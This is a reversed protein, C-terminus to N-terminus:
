KLQGKFALIARDKASLPKTGGMSNTLTKAASPKAESPAPAAPAAPKLKQQIKNVKHLKLVEEMLFEEIEKAAEQTSLLIGDEKFTRTILDVVDEASDTAKITEFEPDSTVLTRVENRIQNVANDYAKTQQEQFGQKTEDQGTRLAKIEAKLADVEAKMRPDLQPVPNLAWQAFQEQTFGNEILFSIPDAMIDEKSVYKAPDVAEPAQHKSVAEERAKLAEERAKFASEQAQAKARLQKEKRALVAYQSSLPEDKPKTDAPSTASDASVPAETTDAQRDEPTSGTRLAGMEEPSIANANQVPHPQEAAKPPPAGASLRAIARERASTMNSTPVPADQSVPASAARPIITPM